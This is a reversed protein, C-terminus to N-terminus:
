KGLPLAETNAGNDDESAKLSIIANYEAALERTSEATISEGGVIIEWLREHITRSVAHGREETWSDGEQSDPRVEMDWTSFVTGATNARAFHISVKVRSKEHVVTTSLSEEAIISLEPTWRARRSIAVDVLERGFRDAVYGYYDGGVIELHMFDGRRVVPLKESECESTASPPIEAGKRM